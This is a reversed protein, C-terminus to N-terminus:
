RRPRLISPDIGHRKLLNYFTSRSVGLAKAAMSANGSARDMAAAIADRGLEAAPATLSLDPLHEPMLDASGSSLAQVSGHALAFHLERVNGEWRALTLTEAAHVSLRISSNEQELFALALAPIEDRRERLPPVEIVIGSLRYYLDRRFTGKVCADRLDQSTAAVVRTKVAVDENAGLPRVCMQDLARLLKVQLEQRLDAVEDIFLVGGSAAVFAGARASNAGTFAGRVHGFLESEFMGEPIATINLAVFPGPQERNAHIIRAVAEKGSGSEGLILVPHPRPSVRAALEWVKALAPGAIVDRRLGLSGATTRRLPEAHVQVDEVALLLTNGVRIVSGWAAGEPSGAVRRGDVYTGHSSGLDVVQLGNPGSILQAHRRSVASDDIRVTADVARGVTVGGTGIPWAAARQDLDRPFIAVVGPRRAATRGALLRPDMPGTPLADSDLNPRDTSM